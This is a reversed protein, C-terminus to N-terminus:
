KKEEDTFGQMPQGQVEILDVPGGPTHDDFVGIVLRGSLYACVDLNTRRRRLVPGDPKQDHGHVVHFPGHGGEDEDPYIEWLMFEAKQRKLPLWRAVAGHVYVRHADVHLVPLGDLWEVHHRPVADASVQQPDKVGYSGLTASGGIGLWFRMASRPEYMAHAMVGEHNGKLCVWRWGQAPGAMLREIVQRSRPGRDVHDGLFILTGSPAYAHIAALAMELLDFRGHLDGM